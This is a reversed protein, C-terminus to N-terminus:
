QSAGLCDSYAMLEAQCGDTTPIPVSGGEACEYSLGAQCDYAAQARARCDSDLQAVVYFGDFGVRDRTSVRQTFGQLYEEPVGAQGAAQRLTTDNRHCRRPGSCFLVRFL